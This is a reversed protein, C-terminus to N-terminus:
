RWLPAATSFICGTRRSKSRNPSPLTRKRSRLSAKSDDQATCTQVLGKSRTSRETFHGRQADHGSRGLVRDLRQEFGAHRSRESKKRAMYTKTDSCSQSACTPFFRGEHRPRTKPDRQRVASLTERLMSTRWTLFRCSNRGAKGNAIMKSHM